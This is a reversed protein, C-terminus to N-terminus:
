LDNIKFLPAVNSYMLHLDTNRKPKEEKYIIYDIGVNTKGDYFYVTKYFRGEFQRYKESLREFIDNYLKKM